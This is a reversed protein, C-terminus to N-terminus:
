RGLGPRSPLVVIPTGAFFSKAQNLAPTDMLIDNPRSGTGFLLGGWRLNMHRATLVMSGELPKSDPKSGNSVAITWLTNGAMAERFHLSPLRLWANWLDLYKKGPVSLSYWYLPTVLVVDTAALTAELLFQANGAPPEFGGTHRLDVFDALPYDVLHVWQKETTEPLSKAAYYALQESNGLRRTSCLLFLFRRTLSSM